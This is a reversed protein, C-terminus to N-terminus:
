KNLQAALEAARKAAPDDSPIGETRFPKVDVKDLFKVIEGVIKSELESHEDELLITFRKVAAWYLRDETYNPDRM